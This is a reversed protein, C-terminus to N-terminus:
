FLSFSPLMASLGKTFILLTAIDAVAAYVICKILFINLDKGKVGLKGMKKSYTLITAMLFLFTSITFGLAPMLLLYLFVAIVTIVGAKSWIPSLIDSKKHRFANYILILALVSLIALWFYTYVDARASFIKITGRPSGMINLISVGIAVLLAIGYQVDRKWSEM